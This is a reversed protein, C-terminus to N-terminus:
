KVTFSYKGQMRHTDAAAAHWSVEYTGKPLPRGGTLTLTKGDASWSPKMGTLKMPQHGSMGPMGTMVIDAGSFAPTPKESFTLSINSTPPVASNAAPTSDVIKTHAQAAVGLNTGALAFSVLLRFAIM